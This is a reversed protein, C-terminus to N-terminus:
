QKVATWYRTSNVLDWHRWLSTSMVRYLCCTNWFNQFLVESLKCLMMM